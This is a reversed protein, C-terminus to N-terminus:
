GDLKGCPTKLADGLSNALRSQWLTSVTNSPSTTGSGHRGIVRHEEVAPLRALLGARGPVHGARVELVPERRPVLRYRREHATGRAARGKPHLVNVIPNGYADLRIPGQPTDALQVARLAKMFATKDEVRGNVGKIGAEIFLVGLYGGITCYGPDDKYEARMAQVWKRNTPTDIAASYTGATIVGLAEDGMSKLSSEETTTVMGLVPLKMGFESYQKLFRQGNTPGFGAYIADVNTKLQAIYPGYAPSVIPPWLKQVIKGGNEEFTRQFGATDEHGYAFDDSIPALRRLLGRGQPRGALRRAGDARVPARRGDPTRVVRDARLSDDLRRGACAGARIGARRRLCLAVRPRPDPPGHLLEKRRAITSLGAPLTLPDEARRGIKHWGERRFSSVM